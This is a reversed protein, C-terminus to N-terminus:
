DRDPAGLPFLPRYPRAEEVARAFAPRALLRARYGRLVPMTDPICHTWDAYFLAPAAACDALTFAEGTAWQRGALQQELWGYARELRQEADARAEAAKGGDGSLAGGVAHQVPSMVHLDFFRDLFRAELAAAPDDPLLRVPGGHKQQLYEIIISTEVVSRGDDVLLPFKRLPWRQLWEAANQPTDPGLMRFQFPTANEYLAILVKQTYSSFPHGYLLLSM